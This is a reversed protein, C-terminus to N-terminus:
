SVWRDPALGVPRMASRTCIAQSPRRILFDATPRDRGDCRGKTRAGRLRKCDIMALPSVLLGSRRSVTAWSIAGRRELICGSHVGILSCSEELMM